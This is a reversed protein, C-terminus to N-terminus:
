CITYSDMVPYMLDLIKRLAIFFKTSSNQIFKSIESSFLKSYVFICLTILSLVIICINTNIIRSINVKVGFIFKTM